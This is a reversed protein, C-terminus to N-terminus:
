ASKLVISQNKKNYSDQWFWLLFLLFTFLLNWFYEHTADFLRPSYKGVYGMIIFRLLNVAYLIFLIIAGWKLKHLWSARVFVMMAPVFLYYDLITCEPAIRMPFTAVNIYPFHYNVDIFTAQCVGLVSVGTFRILYTAIPEYIADIRVVIILVLWLSFTKAIPFIDKYQQLKERREKLQQKFQKSKSIQKKEPKM